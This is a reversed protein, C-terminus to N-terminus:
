WVHEHRVLHRRVDDTPAGLGSEPAEEDDGLMDAEDFPGRGSCGSAKGRDGLREAVDVRLHVPALVLLPFGADGECRRVSHYYQLEKSL